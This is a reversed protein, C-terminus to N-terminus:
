KADCQMGTDQVDPRTSLTYTMAAGGVRRKSQAMYTRLAMAEASGDFRHYRSAIPQGRQERGQARRVPSHRDTETKQTGYLVWYLLTHATHACLAPYPPERAEMSREHAVQQGAIRESGAPNFLLACVAMDVRADEM